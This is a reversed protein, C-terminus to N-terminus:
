IKTACSSWAGDQYQISTLFMWFLFPHSMSTVALDKLLQDCQESKLIDAIQLGEYQTGIVPTLDNHFYSDLSGTYELPRSNRPRSIENGGRFTTPMANTAAAPMNHKHIQCFESLIRASKFVNRSLHPKLTSRTPEAFLHILSPNYFLAAGPATKPPADAFNESSYTHRALTVIYRSQGLIPM